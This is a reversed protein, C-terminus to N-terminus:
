RPIDSASRYLVKAGINYLLGEGAFLLRRFELVGVRLPGYSSIQAASITITGKVWQASGNIPTLTVFDSYGYNLDFLSFRVEANSVFASVVVKMDGNYSVWQCDLLPAWSSLQLTSNITSQTFTTSSTRAAMSGALHLGGLSQGANSWEEHALLVMELQTNSKIQEDILVENSSPPLNGQTLEISM